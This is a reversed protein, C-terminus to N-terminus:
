TLGGLNQGTLDVGCPTAAASNYGTTLDNQAQMAVADNAHISGGTVLGPPFGTVSGGPSTGVNGNIVTPGTNTVTSGGLIAFNQATGLPVQAFAPASISLLAVSLIVPISLSTRKMTSGEKEFNSKKVPQTRTVRSASGDAAASSSPDTARTASSREPRTVGAADCSMRTASIPIPRSSARPWRSRM